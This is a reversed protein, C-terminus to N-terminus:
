DWMTQGCVQTVCVQIADALLKVQYRATLSIPETLLAQLEPPLDRFRM